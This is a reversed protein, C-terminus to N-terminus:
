ILNKFEFSKNEHMKRKARQQNKLLMQISSKVKLNQSLRKSRHIVRSKQHSQQTSYHMVEKSQMELTSPATSDMRQLRLLEQGDTQNSSMLPMRFLEKVEQNTILKLIERPRFV